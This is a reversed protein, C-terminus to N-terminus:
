TGEHSYLEYAMQIRFSCISKDNLLVQSIQNYM